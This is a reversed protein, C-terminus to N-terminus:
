CAPPASPAQAAVQEPVWVVVNSGDLRWTREVFHRARLAAALTPWGKSFADSGELMVAISVSERGLQAAAREEDQPHTNYGPIWTPVGGAFARHALVPIEPGFGSVLVRSRQPTCSALYRILPVRERNPIVNPDGTRLMTSVTVFRQVVKGPTPLGFGQSGLRTAVLASVVVLAIAASAKVMSKPVLHGAIWAALVATLGIVDPMRTAIVDRLLVVGAILAISAAYAIHPFRVREASRRALAAALLPIAMIILLGPWSGVPWGVTRQGESAAFRAAAAAYNVLGIAWQVYVLWPLLFAAVFTVYLVVARLAARHEHSLALLGLTPAAIYVAYDHRWLGAIATWAALAALRRMSPADAYRWGLAVAALPILIKGANYLRPAAALEVAVAVLSILVSGSARLALHYTLVAALSLLTIAVAVDTLLTAGFLRAAAASTLYALPQGPDAFDRLPWDGHLIQHARALAVFHDNELAGMSLWRLAFAAIFVLLPVGTSRVLRIASSRPQSM